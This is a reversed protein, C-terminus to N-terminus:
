ARLSPGAVAPVAPLHSVRLLTRPSPSASTWHGQLCRHTPLTAYLLPAVDGCDRSSRKALGLALGMAHAAACRKCVAQFSALCPVAMSKWPLKGCARLLASPSSACPAPETLVQGRLMQSSASVVYTRSHQRAHLLVRMIVVIASPDPYACLQACCLIAHRSLQTCCLVHLHRASGDNTRQSCM